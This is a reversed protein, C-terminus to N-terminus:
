RRLLLWIIIAIGVLVLPKWLATLLSGSGAGYSVGTDIVPTSPTSAESLSEGTNKNVSFKFHTETHTGLKGALMAAIEPGATKAIEDRVKGMVEDRTAGEVHFPPSESHAVFGGEPKPEIKVAFNLKSEFKITM